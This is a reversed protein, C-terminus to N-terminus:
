WKGKQIYLSSHLTGKDYTNAFYATFVPIGQWTVIYSKDGWIFDRYETNVFANFMEESIKYKEIFERMIAETQEAYNKQSQAVFEQIKEAIM